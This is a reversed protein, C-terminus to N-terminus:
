RTSFSISFIISLLALSHLSIAYTLFLVFVYAYQMRSFFFQRLMYM